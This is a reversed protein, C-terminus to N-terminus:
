RLPSALVRMHIVARPALVLKPCLAGKAHMTRAAANCGCQRMQTKANRLKAATANQRIVSERGNRKRTKAVAAAGFCACKKPRPRRLPM